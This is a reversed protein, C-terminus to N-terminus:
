PPSGDYLGFAMWNGRSYTRCRLREKFRELPVPTSSTGDRYIVKVGSVNKWGDQETYKSIQVASYLRMGTEERVPNPRTKYIGHM